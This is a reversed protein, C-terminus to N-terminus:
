DNLEAYEKDLSELFEIKEELHKYMLYNDIQIFFIKAKEHNIEQEMRKLEAKSWDLENVLNLFKNHKWDLISEKTM